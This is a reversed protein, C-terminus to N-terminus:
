SESLNRNPRCRAQGQTSRPTWELAAHNRHVDSSGNRRVNRQPPNDAKAQTSMCRNDEIKGRDMHNSIKM